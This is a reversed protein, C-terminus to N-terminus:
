GGPSGTQLLEPAYRALQFLGLYHALEARPSWALGKLPGVQGWLFLDNKLTNLPALFLHKLPQGSGAKPQPPGPPTNQAPLDM